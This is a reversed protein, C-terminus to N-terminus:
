YNQNMFVVKCRRMISIRLGTPLQILTNSKIFQSYRKQGILSYGKDFTKSKYKSIRGKDGVKFKPKSSSPKIDGYLNVYVVGENKKKSAEEPTM